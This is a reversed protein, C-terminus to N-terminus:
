HREPQADDRMVLVKFSELIATPRQAPASTAPADKQYDATPTFLEHRQPDAAITRAGRSSAITSAAFRGPASESVVTITGDKGNASYAKGDMWAVGDAGSGIPAQGLVRGTAPDSIVMLGNRCVSYLHGKPDRALGSPEECPTLSYRKVIKLTRADLVAIESKDEVNFFILGKGDTVAYEPVGGAHISSALVRLSAADVATVDESKGNFTFVRRTSPEYVIADPKSGVRVSGLRKGTTLDFVGMSDSGGDSTFVRNLRSAPAAGHVGQTSELQLVPLHTRTDIVEVRDSHAVYLRHAVADISVYDWRTPGPMPVTDVLAPACHAAVNFAILTSVLVSKM